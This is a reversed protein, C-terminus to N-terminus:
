RASLVQMPVAGSAFEVCQLSYLVISLDLFATALEQGFVFVSQICYFISEFFFCVLCCHDIESRLYYCQVVLNLIHCLIYDGQVPFNIGYAKLWWFFLFSSVADNNSPNWFWGVDGVSLLDLFNDLGNTAVCNLWSLYRSEAFRLSICDWYAPGLVLFGLPGSYGWPHWFHRDLVPRSVWM